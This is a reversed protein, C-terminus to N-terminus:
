SDVFFTIGVKQSHNLRHEIEFPDRVSCVVHKPITSISFRFLATIECVCKRICRSCRTNCVTSIRGQAEIGVASAINLIRDTGCPEVDVGCTSHEIRCSGVGTGAGFKADVRHFTRLIDAVPTDSEIGDVIGCAFGVTVSEACALIHKNGVGRM